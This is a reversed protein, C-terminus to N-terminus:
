MFAFIEPPLYIINDKKVINTTTKSIIIGHTSKYRNIAHKIQSKDKDGCSV